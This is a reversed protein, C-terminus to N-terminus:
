LDWGSIKKQYKVKFIEFVRIDLFNYVIRDFKFQFFKFINFQQVKKDKFGFEKFYVIM